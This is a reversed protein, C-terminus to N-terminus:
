RCSWVALRAAGCASPAPTSPELLIPYQLLLDSHAALQETASGSSIMRDINGILDVNFLVVGIFYLGEQDPRSPVVHGDEPM